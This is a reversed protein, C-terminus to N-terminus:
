AVGEADEGLLQNIYYGLTFALTACTGGLLLTELGSTFWHAARNSRDLAFCFNALWGTHHRLEFEKEFV